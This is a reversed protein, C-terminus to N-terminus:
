VKGVSVVREDFHGVIQIKRQCVRITALPTLKVTWAVWLGGSLGSRQDRILSGGGGVLDRADGCLWGMAPAQISHQNDTLLGGVSSRHWTDLFWIRKSTSSFPCGLELRPTHSTLLIEGGASASVSEVFNTCCICLLFAGTEAIHRFLYTIHCIKKGVKQLPPKFIM